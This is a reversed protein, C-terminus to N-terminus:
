QDLQLVHFVNEVLEAFTMLRDNQRRRILLSCAISFIIIDGNETYKKAM